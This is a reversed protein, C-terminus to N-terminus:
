CSSSPATGSRGLREHIGAVEDVSLFVFIGGLITWHRAYPARERAKASGILFLLAACVLLAFSSYCTPISIDNGVSVIPRLGLQHDRGGIFFLLDSAWSVATLRIATLLFALTIRHPRLVYGIRGLQSPAKKRVPPSSLM